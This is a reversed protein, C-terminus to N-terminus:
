QAVFPINGSRVQSADEGFIVDRRRHSLNEITWHGRRLKLLREASARLVKELAVVDINKLFPTPNERLHLKAHAVSFTVDCM